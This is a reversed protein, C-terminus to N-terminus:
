FGRVLTAIDAQALELKIQVENGQTTVKMSNLANEVLKGKASDRSVHAALMSAFQKAAAITDELSKAQEANETRAVTLMDFGAATTGISGYVQRISSINKIIEENDIDLSRAASPPLNAGFGIMANPNRTALGVLESNVRPGRGSAADIAARAGAPDGMALTDADLAVVALDAVKMNLVGFLRVQQELTFIYITKGEYKEEKYKGQAALRGAAVFANANFTGHAIAVKREENAPTSTDDFRFGAAIRDFQRLDIGTRTKFRDIEANAEALRAPNNALTRPMADTLLRKIDVVAVADSAPLMLLPDNAAITSTSLLKTTRGSASILVAGMVIILAILSTYIRKNVIRWEGKM